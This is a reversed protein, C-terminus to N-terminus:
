SPLSSFSSLTVVTYNSIDVPGLGIRVTTKGICYYGFLLIAEAKSPVEFHARQDTPWFYHNNSKISLVYM